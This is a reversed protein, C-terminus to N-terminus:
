GVDYIRDPYLFVDSDYQIKRGIPSLLIERTKEKTLHVYFISSPDAISVGDVIDSFESIIIRKLASVGNSFEHSHVIRRETDDNLNTCLRYGLTLYHNKTCRNRQGKIEDLFIDCDWHAVDGNLLDRYSSRFHDLVKTKAKGFYDESDLYPIVIQELYNNGFM